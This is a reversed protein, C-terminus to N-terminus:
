YTSVVSDGTQVLDAPSAIESIYDNPKDSDPGTVLLQSKKEAPYGHVPCEIRRPWKAAGSVPRLVLGCNEGCERTYPFNM